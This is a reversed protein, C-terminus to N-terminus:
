SENVLVTRRIVIVKILSVGSAEDEDADEDQRM